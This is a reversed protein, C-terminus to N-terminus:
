GSFQKQLPMTAEERDFTMSTWARPRKHDIGSRRSDLSDPVTLLESKVIKAAFVRDANHQAEKATPKGMCSCADISHPLCIAAISILMFVIKNMNASLLPM